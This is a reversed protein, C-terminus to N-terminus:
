RANRWDLRTEYKNPPLVFMSRFLTSVFSLFFNPMRLSSRSPPPLILPDNRAASRMSSSLTNIAGTASPLRPAGVNNSTSPPGLGARLSRSIEKSFSLPSKTQSLYLIQNLADVNAPARCGRHAGPAEPLQADVPSGRAAETRDSRRRRPM